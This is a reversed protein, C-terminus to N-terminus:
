QNSAQPDGDSASPNSFKDRFFSPQPADTDSRDTDMDSISTGGAYIGASGLSDTTAEAKLREALKTYQNARAALNTLAVTEGDLQSSQSASFRAFGALISLACKYAAWGVSSEQAIWYDIEADTLLPDSEIIDNVRIRVADRNSNAPDGTYTWPM